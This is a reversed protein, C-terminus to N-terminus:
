TQAPEAAAWRAPLGGLTEEVARYQPDLWARAKERAGPRLDVRQGEHSVRDFPAPHDPLDLHKLIKAYLGDAGPEFMEEYIGILVKEKPLAAQIKTLASAYDGRDSIHNLEADGELIRRLINHSRKTMDQGEKFTRRVHMRIHSWLRSVPDRMLYIFRVDPAMEAMARLRDESLLNYAPTIDGIVSHDAGQGNQLYELYAEDSPARLLRGVDRIDLAHRNGAVTAARGTLTKFRQDIKEARREAWGEDIADFYHLEKVTRLHVNPHEVLADYLWTTGAKTAGLGVMVVSDSLSRM